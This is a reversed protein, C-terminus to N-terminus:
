LKALETRALQILPKITAASFDFKCGAAAFLEPLPKSGGLALAAKYDALAKMKNAKSNAWVQLAGLQAIGYEVYYFPHLFIHLQRHWSHARSKEWGSFDTDGGFRDMLALYAAKREDRTHGPHAYIWHQFADVTAMWPFFGIIGELHTRCARASEAPAYFESIFENGLLEMSMSAVECFEIPAGRYALLDEGRTALAHFAHGAEHLITEVDRQQGVANMFIFPLRAENLTSQYGGPAKGKRNDLDLLKLDQMQQFGAALEPDLQDFIKQTRAVMESVQAFPQLPARNLSDVALDWPRLKDLKLQARRQAQLERVAPMIETAIADHFQACDEPTYDFRGMRRFMFDRYNKFGANAAIQGRLQIIADFIEECKDVDQLRRTAVLEWAEQRLARDPEELLKGMQVLTKEEGRFNVTQAGILKQYQQCLKAEETELAVNEARFLEVRVQVDRDFVAYRLPPLKARQPHAVYLKELVSQRPKLQPEIHEVFHLYSKEADANDTHCTMAIYRRSAEEDLAASLESWAVLWRELETASAALAAQKELRDFLPALQAWDGLNLQVPVFSRPTHPPLSTFPLLNM